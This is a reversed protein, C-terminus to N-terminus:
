NKNIQPIIENIGNIKPAPTFLIRCNLRLQRRRLWLQFPPIRNQKKPPKDTRNETPPHIPPHQQHVHTQQIIINDIERENAPSKKIKKQKKQQDLKKTPQAKWFVSFHKTKTSTSHRLNWKKLSGCCHNLSIDVLWCESSSWFSPGCLTKLWVDHFGWCYWSMM